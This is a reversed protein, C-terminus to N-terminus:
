QGRSAITNADNLLRQRCNELDEEAESIDNLLDDREVVSDNEQLDYMVQLGEEIYRSGSKIDGKECLTKGYRTLYCGYFAREAPYDRARIEQRLYDFAQSFLRESETWNGIGDAVEAQAICL